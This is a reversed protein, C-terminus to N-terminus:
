ILEGALHWVHQSVIKVKVLKGILEREGKFNVTKFNTTRGTLMDKNNKSEGEVLIEQITGVMKKNGEEVSKNVENVLRKFRESKIEEPVQDEMTEAPTGVRKSYLYMYASDYGVKKIIDLTEEFDEETEGPFGVIIDTSFSANPIKIRVKDILELYQEKTYKRNMAKLIDTSGSQVPLHIFDCFKKDSAIVDILEDSFDKPHPTMFRIRKIGEIKSTEKLLKAFTISEELDKGYSNVNQGLLLIEPFGEDAVKKVEALIDEPLRSRERGRVHPVICYTCFNNCGYMITISARINNERKIPLDEIVQGEIDWVEITKIGDIMATHLLQPFRYMNHTGFIIDVHRYKTNLIDQIHKQQSMCGGFAIILNPNHRKLEKLYGIRGFVKSEANERVCCTNFIVLDAGEPKDQEKYGMEDLMGKLKESDNENLQCGMTEICYLKNQGMNFQEIQSIYQKQRNIEEQTVKVTIRKSM